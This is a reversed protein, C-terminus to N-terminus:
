HKKSSKSIDGSMKKLKLVQLKVTKNLMNEREWKVFRGGNISGERARSGVIFPMSKIKYVRM